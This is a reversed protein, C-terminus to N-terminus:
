CPCTATRSGRLVSGLSPYMLLNLNINQASCRSFMEQKLGDVKTTFSAPRNEAGDLYFNTRRRPYFTLFNCSSLSLGPWLLAVILPKAEIFHFHKIPGLSTRRPTSPSSVWRSQSSGQMQGWRHGNTGWSILTLDHLNPQQPAPFFRGLEKLSVTELLSRELDLVMFQQQEFVFPHASSLWSDTFGHTIRHSQVAQTETWLM